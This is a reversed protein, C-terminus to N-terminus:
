PANLPPPLSILSSASDDLIIITTTTHTLLFPRLPTTPPTPPTPTTPCPASNFKLSCCNYAHQSRLHPRRHPHTASEARPPPILFLLTQLSRQRGRSVVTMTDFSLHCREPKEKDGVPLRFHLCLEKYQAVKQEQWGPLGGKQVSSPPHPPASTSLSPQLSVLQHSCTIRMEM